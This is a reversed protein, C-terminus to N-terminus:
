IAWMSLLRELVVKSYFMPRATALSNEGARSCSFFLCSPLNALSEADLNKDHGSSTHLCCVSRRVTSSSVATMTLIQLRLCHPGLRALYAGSSEVFKALNIQQLSWKYSCNVLSCYSAKIFTITIICLHLSCVLKCVQLGAWGLLLGRWRGKFRSAWM